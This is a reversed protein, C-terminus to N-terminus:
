LFPAYKFKIKHIGQSKRLIAANFEVFADMFKRYIELQDMYNTVGSDTIM